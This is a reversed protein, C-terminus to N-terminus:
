LTERLAASDVHVELEGGFEPAKGPLHLDGDEADHLFREGIHVAMGSAFGRLHTHPPVSLFHGQLNAILAMAKGCVAVRFRRSRGDGAHTNLAHPLSDPLQAPMELNLGAFASLDYCCSNRQTIRLDGRRAFSRLSRCLGTSRRGRSNM